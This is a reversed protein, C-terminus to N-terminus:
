GPEGVAPVSQPAVMGVGIAERRGRSTPSINIPDLSEQAPLTCALLGILELVTHHQGSHQQQEGQM